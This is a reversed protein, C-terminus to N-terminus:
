IGPWNSLFDPSAPSEAEFQKEIDDPFNPFLDFGLKAELEDISLAVSHIPTDATYARHEVWIGLGHYPTGKKVVLAMWYYKPVVIKGKVKHPEVQDDRITGGKAVYLVDRFRSNRGWGQVQQELQMWYKQNLEGLQPSMNSYYFTQKNAEFSFTRDSSAVMHGRDYGSGSFMFETSYQKPINPDWSWANTRKVKTVSNVEDFTFCVFRPHLKQVDYEVSYNVIGNARHTIYYNHSGGSIAPAELLTIDGLINEGSPHSPYDPGTTKGQQTIRLTDQVGQSSAIIKAERTAGLNESISIAIRLGQSGEGKSQELQLWSSADSPEVSLAWSGQSRLKIFFNAGEAPIAKIKSDSPPFSLQLQDSPRIPQDAKKTTCCTLIGGGLTFVLLLYKFIHNKFKNRM